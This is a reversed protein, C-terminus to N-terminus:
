RRCVKSYVERLLKADDLAHHQRYKSADIDIEKFFNEKDQPYYAEPNIGMSFLISAFDIPLWHFPREIGSFLKYLYLTDYQNVYSVFYPCTQGVFEKIKGIATERSVKPGKLTPLINKKVWLDVEGDFELELYLEKGAVDILGLSLIEGKYPDLSSFETDFFVINNSYPTFHFNM